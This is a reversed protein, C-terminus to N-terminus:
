YIAHVRWVYRIDFFRNGLLDFGHLVQRKMYDENNSELM